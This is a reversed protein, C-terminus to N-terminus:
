TRQALPFGRMGRTPTTSPAPAWRAATGEGRRRQRRPRPHAAAASRRKRRARACARSAETRSVARAQGPAGAGDAPLAAVAHGNGSGPPAPPHRREPPPPRRPPWWLGGGRACVRLTSPACGGASAVVVPLSPCPRSHGWGRAPAVGNFPPPLALPLAATPSGVAGCRPCGHRRGGAPRRRPLRARGGVGRCRPSFVATAEAVARMPVGTSATAVATAATAALRPPEPAVIGDPPRVAERAWGNRRGGRSPRHHSGRRRRRRARAGGRRPTRGGRGGSGGRGSGSRGRGRGSGEAAHLRAGRARDDVASRRTPPLRPPLAALPPPRGGWGGRAPSGRTARPARGPALSLSRAHTRARPARGTPARVPSGGVSLTCPRRGAGSLFEFISSPALGAFLRPAHWRLFITRLFTFCCCIMRFCHHLRDEGPAGSQRVFVTCGPGIPEGCGGSTESQRLRRSRGRRWGRRAAADGGAGDGPATRGGQSV